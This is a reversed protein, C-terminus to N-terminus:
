RKASTVPPPAVGSALLETLTVFRYGKARLTSVIKPLSSTAAPEGNHMLIIAGDCASNIVHDAMDMYRSGEYPSCLITWFVGTFGQRVAAEKTADNAHGGPPRFYRVPKGCLSHLVAASRSLELEVEDSTLTTLNPHTYTHNEIEHGASVMAKVLDPQAEARFGVLFFTAHVQLKALQELMEATRENPGDDFTLAIMKSGPKGRWAEVFHLDWGRLGNLMGRADMFGPDIAVTDELEKIANDREGSKIYLKALQYHALKRSSGLRMFEWLKSVLDADEASEKFAGKGGSNAIRVAVSKSSVVGGGPGKAEIRINHLGNSCTTTDWSFEFPSCNTVSNCVDDVYLTVFAVDSLRAADARLTIVGSVTHADQRVVPKWVFKGGPVTIPQEPNFTPLPARTEAFGPPAPARLVELLLSKAESSRGVKIATMAAIQTTLSSRVTQNAVPVIGRICAMYARLSALDSHSEPAAAAAAFERDADTPHFEMMSILGLAYHAHWDDPWTSLVNQFETKADNLKGTHLYMVGLAMHGLPDSDDRALVQELPTAAETYRGLEIKSIAERLNESRDSSWCTASVLCILLSALFLRRFMCIM